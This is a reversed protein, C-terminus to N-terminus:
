AAEAFRPAVEEAFIRMQRLLDELDESDFGCLAYELGVQRYTEIGQAIADASGSLSTPAWPTTSRVFAPEDPRHIRFNLVNAITPCQRGRTLDRLMTVGAGFADLDWNYPLWAAGYRAARRVSALTDGGIWIPPGGELPAPRMSAAAINHFRGHYTAIPERWLAQLVEIAEDTVAGRQKFDAGLAAFEEARHGIGVGLIFRHGSLLDLAGAQKAVLMANRQPLVLVSTGLTIRETLHILSALTVLPEIVQGGEMTETDAEEPQIIEDNAWISDYGLAEAARAAEVIAVTMSSDPYDNWYTPLYAGFRM